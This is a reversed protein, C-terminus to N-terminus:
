GIVTCSIWCLSLRPHNDPQQLSDSGTHWRAVRHPDQCVSANAGRWAQHSATHCHAPLKQKADGFLTRDLILVAVAVGKIVLNLLGTLRERRATQDEFLPAM